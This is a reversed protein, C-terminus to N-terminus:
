APRNGCTARAVMSDGILHTVNSAIADSVAVRRRTTPQRRAGRSMNICNRQHPRNDRRACRTPRSEARHRRPRRARSWCRGDSSAIRLQRARDISELRRHALGLALGSRRSSRDARAPPGSRPACRRAADARSPREDGTPWPRWDSIVSRRLTVLRRHRAEQFTRFLFADDMVNLM